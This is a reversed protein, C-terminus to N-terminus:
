DYNLSSYKQGKTTTARGHQPEKINQMPACKGVSGMWMSLVFYLIILQENWFTMFHDFNHPEKLFFNSWTFIIIYVKFKQLFSTIQIIKCSTKSRWLWLFITTLKMHNVVKTGEEPQFMQDKSSFSLLFIRM